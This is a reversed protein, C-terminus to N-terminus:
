SSCILEHSPRSPEREKAAVLGQTAADLQSQMDALQQETQGAHSQSAKSLAEAVRERIAVERLTCARLCKRLSRTLDILEQRQTAQTGGDKTRTLKKALAETCLEELAPDKHFIASVIGELRNPELTGSAWASIKMSADSAARPPSTNPGAKSHALVGDQASQCINPPRSTEENEDGSKLLSSKCTTFSDNKANRSSFQPIGTNINGRSGSVPSADASGQIFSSM